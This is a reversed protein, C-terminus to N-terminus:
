VFSWAVLWSRWTTLSTRFAACSSSCLKILTTSNRRSIMGADFRIRSAACFEVILALGAHQVVELGLEGEVVDDLLVAVRQHTM